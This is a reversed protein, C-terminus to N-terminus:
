LIRKAMLDFPFPLVSNKEYAEQHRGQYLGCELLIREDGIELLHMSGTVTRVGGLFLLRM